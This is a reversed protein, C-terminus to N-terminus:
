PLKTEASRFIKPFTKHKGMLRLALLAGCALILMTRLVGRRRKRGEM